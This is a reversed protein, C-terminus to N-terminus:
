DKRFVGILVTVFVVTICVLLTMMVLADWGEPSM